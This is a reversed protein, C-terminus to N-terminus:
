GPADSGCGLMKAIRQGVEWDTPPGAHCGAFAALWRSPSVNDDHPVYSTTRLRFFPWALFWRLNRDNRDTGSCELGNRRGRNMCLVLFCRKSVLRHIVNTTRRTLWPSAIQTGTLRRSRPEVCAVLAQQIRQRTALVSYFPAPCRAILDALISGLVAAATM